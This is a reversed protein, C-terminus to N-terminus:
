WHAMNNKKYQFVVKSRTSNSIEKYMDSLNPKKGMPSYRLDSLFLTKIHRESGGM